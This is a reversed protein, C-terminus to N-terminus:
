YGIFDWKIRNTDIYAYRSANNDGRKKILYNVTLLARHIQAIANCELSFNSIFHYKKLTEESWLPRKIGM